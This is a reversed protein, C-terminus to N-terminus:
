KLVKQNRGRTSTSTSSLIGFYKYKVSTSEFTSPGMDSCQEVWISSTQISVTWSTYKDGGDQQFDDLETQLYVDALDLKSFRTGNLAHFLEEPKPLPYVDTKLSPNITVKFDGCIQIKGGPKGVVVIPTAWEAHSVKKIVGQKELRDLEDGVIPKLAFPLKCPKCFKPNAGEQLTITAKATLCHGLESKFIEDNVNM